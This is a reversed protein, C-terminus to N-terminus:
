RVMAENDVPTAAAPQNGLATKDLFNRLIPVFQLFSERDVWEDESHHKGGEPCSIICPINVNNIYIADSAAFSVCGEPRKGTVAEVSDMYSQVLSNDLDTAVPPGYIREKYAVDHRKCLEHIRELIDIYDQHSMVRIEVGATMLSPIQNYTVGGHVVGINLTNTLPGHGSFYEKLEGLAQILKFSASEGEWPRSGHATVGKAILDFRWFGKALKEVEWGPAASDPMLCVTARYGAEILRATGNINDRSGYEEDTTIMITFDYDTLRDKLDDVLQMYGATAFKMDYVGRGKLKGDEERLTFLTEDGSMVDVHSTLLVSPSKANDPRTSATLAGHGDFQFRETYMGREALYHEIYDLCMDNATSDDTITPMAVLAALQREAETKM